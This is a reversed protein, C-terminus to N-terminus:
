AKSLHPTGTPRDTRALGAAGWFGQPGRLLRGIENIQSKREMKQHRMQLRMGPPVPLVPTPSAEEPAAM